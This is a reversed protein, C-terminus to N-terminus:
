MWASELPSEGGFFRAECCKEIIDAAMRRAAVEGSGVQWQRLHSAKQVEGFLGCQRV